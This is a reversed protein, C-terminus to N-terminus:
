EKYLRDPFIKSFDKSFLPKTNKLEDFFDSKMFPYFSWKRKDADLLKKEMFVEIGVREMIQIMVELEKISCISYPMKILWETPLNNQTFILKIKKDLIDLLKDGFCYLDELSVVIPFIKRNEVNFSPYKGDLCDSLTKYNQVIANALINLDNELSDETIIETKALMTMRKTKCEILLAAKKDAVVWDVTNKRNKGDYYEEEKYITFQGNLARLVDGVYVQFSSGFEQDFDKERYIEYYIGSTLKWFLLTSAPCVLSHKGNVNMRIIPYARLPFFSYFFKEDIERNELTEKKLSNLDQSFCNLFKTLNEEPIEPIDVVKIPLNLVFKDLFFGAFLMGVLYLEKTDLGMKRKIIESIRATGFIKYYRVIDDRNPRTQWPFQRHALRFMENLVNGVDIYQKAIEGDLDRLKNLAGAFYGWKRLTKGGLGDERATLLSERILTELSWATINIQPNAEIVEKLTEIDEPIQNDFQLWQIFAWFVYLSDVLNTQALHNRLPKYSEFLSSNQM